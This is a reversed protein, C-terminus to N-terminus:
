QVDSTELDQNRTERGRGGAIEVAEFGFQPIAFADSANTRMRADSVTTRTAAPRTAQRDPLTKPRQAIKEHAAVYGVCTCSRLDTLPSSVGCKTRTGRMLAM